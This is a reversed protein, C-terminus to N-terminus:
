PEWKVAVANGAKGLAQFWEEADFAMVTIATIRAWGNDSGMVEVHIMYDEYEYCLFAFIYSGEEGGWPLWICSPMGWEEIITNALEVGSVRANLGIYSGDMGGGSLPSVIVEYNGDALAQEVTYNEAGEKPNKIHYEVLRSKVPKGEWDIADYYVGITGIDTLVKLEEYTAPTVEVVGSSDGRPYFYAFGDKVLEEPMMGPLYGDKTGLRSFPYPAAEEGTPTLSAFWYGEYKGSAKATESKDGSLGEQVAQGSMSGGSGVSKANSCATFVCAGLAAACMWKWVAQRKKM